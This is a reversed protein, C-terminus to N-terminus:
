EGEKRVHDIPYWWVNGNELLVAVQDPPCQGNAVVIGPGHYRGTSVHVSQGMPFERDKYEQLDRLAAHYREVRESNPASARHASVWWCVHEIDGAKLADMTESPAHLTTLIDVLADVARQIATLMILEKGAPDMYITEGM